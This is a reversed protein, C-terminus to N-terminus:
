QITTNFAQESNILSEKQRGGGGGGGKRERGRERGGGQERGRRQTDRGEEMEEKILAEM